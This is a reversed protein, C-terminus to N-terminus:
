AAYKIQITNTYLIRGDLTEFETVGNKARIFTGLITSRPVAMRNGKVDWVQTPQITILKKAGAILGSLSWKSGDYKLGIRYLEDNIKKKYESSGFQNLLANVITQSVYGDAFTWYRTKKFVENVANYKAKDKILKLAAMAQYIDDKDIADHLKKSITTPSVYGKSSGKNTQKSGTKADTGAIFKAYAQSDFTTPQKFKKLAEQTKGGWDGDVKIGANFRKNLVTQIDKVLTGMSGYKLPFQNYVTPKKGSSKPAPTSSGSSASSGSATNGQDIMDKFAAVNEDDKKEQLHKFLFYGGTAVAVAGLGWLLYRKKAEM